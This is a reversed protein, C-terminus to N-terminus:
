AACTKAERIVQKAARVKERHEFLREAAQMEALEAYANLLRTTARVQERYPAERTQERLLDAAVKGASTAEQKHWHWLESNAINISNFGRRYTIDAEIYWWQIAMADFCFIFTFAVIILFTAANRVLNSM